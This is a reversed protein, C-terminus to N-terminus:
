LEVRLTATQAIGTGYSELTAAYDIRIDLEGLRPSVSFGASPRIEGADGDVRGAVIAHYRKAVRRCAFAESLAALAPKTKACM